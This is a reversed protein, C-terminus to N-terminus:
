MEQININNSYILLYIYKKTSTEVTMSKKLPKPNHFQHNHFFAWLGCQNREPDQMRGCQFITLYIM